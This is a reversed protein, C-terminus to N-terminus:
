RNQINSHGLWDQLFRIEAGADLLHTAMSHKLVHVHRKEKPIAALEAYEKMLVDLMQRSIPLGPQSPFLISSDTGRSKLWAKLARAEDAQLPHEGSLSGKLRHVIIRLRKLDFDSVQLQGIESARLGHRYAIM